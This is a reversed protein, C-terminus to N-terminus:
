SALTGSGRWWLGSGLWGRRVAIYRPDPHASHRLANSERRMQMEERGDVKSSSKTGRSRLKCFEENHRARVGGDSKAAVVVKNARVGALTSDRTGVLSGGAVVEDGNVDRTTLKARMCDECAFDSSSVTMRKCVLLPLLLM